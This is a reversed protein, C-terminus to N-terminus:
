VETRQESSAYNVSNRPIMAVFLLLPIMPVRFRPDIQPAAVLLMAATVILPFMLEQRDIRGRLIQALAFLCLLAYLAALAISKVRNVHIGAPTDVALSLPFTLQDFMRVTYCAMAALPSAFLDHLGIATLERSIRFSDISTRNGQALRSWHVEDRVSKDVDALRRQLERDIGEWTAHPFGAHAPDTSLALYRDKAGGQKWLVVEAAKFYALVVGSQDSLAFRGSIQRNRELWPTVVLLMAFLLLLPSAFSVRQAHSSFRAQRNVGWRMWWACIFLCAGTVVHGPWVLILAGILGGLIVFWGGSKNRMGARWAGWALLLLTVQWTTSLLWGAYLMQYPEILFLVAAALARRAGLPERVVAFFILVNILSLVHQLAILTQPSNGLFVMQAALLMPYGPTRWTDPRFPPAESQSFAGSTAMNWAIAYYERADPSQFAQAAIGGSRFHLYTLAALHVVLGITLLM